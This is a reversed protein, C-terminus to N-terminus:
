SPKCTMHQWKKCKRMIYSTKRGDVNKQQFQPLHGFNYWFKLGIVSKHWMMNRTSTTFDAM